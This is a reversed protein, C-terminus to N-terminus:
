QLESHLPAGATTCLHCILLSAPIDITLLAHHTVM